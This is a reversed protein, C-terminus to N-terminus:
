QVQVSAESSVVPIPQQQSNRASAQVISLPSSGKAVGRLVIGLITGTGSVGGTNPPRAASIIAQGREKDVRQVLAVPQTGGSLFGGQRIEEVMVVAPNFTILVPMSYLDKVDEIVLGVTATEGAKLSVTAPEFRLKTPHETSAPAPIVPAPQVAAVGQGAAPATPAAPPAPAVAVPAPAAVEQLHRVQLNTETGTSLTRLNDPTLEPLRVITPKLVILVESEENEVSEGSFFYRVFPISAFGPWGTVSKTQTREMLGGLVSVEGEKLRVDHEIKRQSIIPQEIGGINVNGTVSSVEVVVKLSIERNLHVRPTVDINVGVDQYQFQTNVLPNIVGATSTTAGLGAQFSGTAVPIRDGIKLKASQGDVVRIEPDDIIKTNSDTLLAMASAGPLSISYDASSLHGLEQLTITPLSPTTTGNNSTSGSNSTSTANNPAFTLVASSGPTIGLDRMRDTRAQLVSVQVLVEPKARDVDRLVKEVVAIKDPTDRIVIANQATIQQIRHLDAIQRLGAVIETLEQPQVTNSLYFTKVIFDDYDKRKQAQEPVVFIITPTVPKWFTKSELAVVDLAQEINVNTLETTIRRSQIDPDFIVTLGALKGITEYVIRSDNTMKLNVERITPKLDPPRELLRSDDLQGPVPAPPAGQLSPKGAIIDLAKRAEQGAIPSSPDIAMAKEFEALAIKPEGKEMQKQGEKVHAAGAEFRIQSVKLKYEINLP